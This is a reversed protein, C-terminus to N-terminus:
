VGTFGWPDEASTALGNGAFVPSPNGPTSDTWTFNYNGSFGRGFMTKPGSFYLQPKLGLYPGLATWGDTSNRVPALTAQDIFGGLPEGSVPEPAGHRINPDDVDVYETTAFLFMEAIDGVYAGKYKKLTTRGVQWDLGQWAIDYPQFTGIGPYGFIWPVSKIDDLYAKIVTQSQPSSQNIIGRTNFGAIIHHYNGDRPVWQTAGASDALGAMIEVQNSANPGIRFIFSDGEPYPTFAASFRFSNNGGSLGVILPPENAGAMPPSASRYWLSILGYPSSAPFGGVSTNRLMTNGDFYSAWVGKNSPAPPPAPKAGIAIKPMVLTAGTGILLTRRNM